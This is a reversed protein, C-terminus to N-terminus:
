MHKVPQCKEIMREKQAELILKDLEQSGDLVEGTCLENNSLMLLYLKEKQKQIEEDIKKM